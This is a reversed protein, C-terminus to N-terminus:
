RTPHPLAPPPSPPTPAAATTTAPPAPRLSLFVWMAVGAGFIGLSYVQSITLPTGFVGPSDGRLFEMLFRSTAYMLCALIFVEGVRRRRWFFWSLVAAEFFGDLASYIQTPHLPMTAVANSPLVGDAVLAKFPLTNPAFCIGWPMSTPDGYCCGNLLCGIRGFGVGVFVSPIVLDAVDLFSIQRSRSFAFMAATGGVLAGILVLGGATLNIAAFLAEALGMGPMFVQNRFQVLYAIRGGLVGGVVIWLALDMVLEPDKGSKLARRRTLWLASLVGILVSVGYGFLPFSRPLLHMGLVSHVTLLGVVIGAFVLPPRDEEPVRGYRLRAFALYALAFVSVVVALGPGSLGQAPDHKWIAWPSDLFFLLLVPRM